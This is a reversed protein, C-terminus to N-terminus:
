NFIFKTIEQFAPLAQNCFVPFSVFGHIAGPYNILEVQNGAEQLRQAYEVGQDHLVDYESTIILAPPLNSLDKAFLPSFYPQQIDEPERAYCDIFFQMRDKSLVPADANRDVSARNLEGSTVPYILIQKAIAQLKTERVMLCLVTALNGGASDGMVM